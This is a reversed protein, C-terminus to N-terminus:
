NVSIVANETVTLMQGDIVIIKNGVEDSKVVLPQLCYFDGDKTRDFEDIDDLLDKVQQETWRYGRQYSPIKFNMGNLEGISKLEINVGM